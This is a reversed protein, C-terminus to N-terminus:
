ASIIPQMQELKKLINLISEKKTPNNNASTLAHGLVQAGLHSLQIRLSIILGMGGGGSHSSIAIPKGNFLNRFDSDQVSLWAIANTLLPPISGNYEPACIIWRKASKMKISLDKISSSVELSINNRPNFLPLDLTTLDLLDSRLDMTNALELFHNALKLNEGNSATIILLDKTSSM